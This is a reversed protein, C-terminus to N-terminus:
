GKKRKGDLWNLFTWWLCWLYAGFIGIAILAACVAFFPVLMTTDM